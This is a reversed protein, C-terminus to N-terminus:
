VVWHWFFLFGLWFTPFFGLVSLEGFFVYLHSVHFTAWCWENNSFHLYFSCCIVECWDSHGDDFLRCGGQKYNGQNHLLIPSFLLLHLFLCLILRLFICAVGGAWNWFFLHGILFHALSRFLCKELSIYIALLCMFLHKVDSMILSICILVVILYWQM